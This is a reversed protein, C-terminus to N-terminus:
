AGDAEFYYTKDDIKGVALRKGDRSITSKETRQKSSVAVQRQLNIKTTTVLM